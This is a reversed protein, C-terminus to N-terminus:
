YLVRWSPSPGLNRDGPVPHFGLAVTACAQLGLMSQTCHSSLRLLQHAQAEILSRTLLFLIPLLCSLSSIDM